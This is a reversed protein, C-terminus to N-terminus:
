LVAYSKHHFFSIVFPIQVKGHLQCSIFVTQFANIFAFIFIM